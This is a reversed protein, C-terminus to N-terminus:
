LAGIVFSLVGQSTTWSGTAILGICDGTNLEIGEVLTLSQNTAPTGNADFTTSTLNTGGSVATGSPATVPQITAAAGEAIELRGSIALVACRFPAVFLVVNNPNVGAIWSVEKTFPGAGLTTVDLTRIEGDQIVHITESGELPTVAKNIGVGFLADVIDRPDPDPLQVNVSQSAQLKAM